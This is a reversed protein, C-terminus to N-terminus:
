CEEAFYPSRRKYANTDDKVAQNEDHVTDLGAKIAQSLKSATHTVTNAYSKANSM